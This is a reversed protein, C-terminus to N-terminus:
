YNDAIFKEIRDMAENLQARDITGALRICHNASPGFDPGPIVVVQQQDLLDYAFKEIDETLASIDALLYFSGVPPHLKVGSIQRLRSYLLDCRVKFKEVMTKFQAPDSKLAALAARQSVSGTGATANLVAKILEEMIWTPGFAYGVRWGTMAYYKSFSNVVVTREPMGPRTYISEHNGTFLIRDYVEDSLVLLDHKIVLTAIEDMVESPIVSGTPNNPSNLLIAKTKPTIAKELIEPEPVFKNEFRTPVTVIRGGAYRIHDRYPPFYPDFVIVEQDDSIVTRMYSLIAGMAGHTIIIQNDSLDIGSTNLLFKRLEDLLEPDGFGTIYHTHGALSDAQAAQCINEATHFDPEGIGLSIVNDYQSARIAMERIISFKVDRVVNSIKNKM